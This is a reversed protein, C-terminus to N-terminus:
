GKNQGKYIDDLMPDGAPERIANVEALAGSERKLERVNEEFKTGTLEKSARRNTIFGLEVMLQYAKVTKLPDASPKIAGAWDALTWAIWRAGRQRYDQLLRPTQLVRRAHMDVIFFEYSPACVVRAFRTRRKNLFMKFEEKSGQSAAYNSNFGQMLIEPPVEFAWALTNVIAAEFDGFNVDTNGQFGVIEEGANLNQIVRGPAVETTNYTRTGTSTSDYNTATRVSAGTSLPRSKAVTDNSRKIFMAITSNIIAKRQASDRYKDIEKLSQLALALFPEGRVDDHRKDCGYVLRAQRRGTKDYAPIFQSSGDKKRVYYGVHAGREDLKVGHREDRDTGDGQVATGPIIQLKAGHWVCLVDGCILSELYVTEQLEAFTQEGRYDISQPDESFVKFFSEISASWESVQEDTLGLVRGEPTAEVTLGTSIVNTVFRRLIGRAYINRRFLEDSRKRLAYYDLEGGYDIGWGSLFKEGDFAEWGAEGGPVTPLSASMSNAIGIGEFPDAQSKFPWWSVM